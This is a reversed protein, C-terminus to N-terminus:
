VVVSIAWLPDGVYRLTENGEKDLTVLYLGEPFNMGGLTFPEDYLRVLGHSQTNM